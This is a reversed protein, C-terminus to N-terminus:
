SKQQSSRSRWYAAQKPDKPVGLRGNEFCDALQVQAKQIDHEAARIYWQVAQGYDQSVGEGFAYCDGLRYQAWPHEQEAAKCYWRFAEEFSQEVGEGRYYRQALNYQAHANGNEAARRYWVAAKKWDQSVGRGKAYCVGLDKQAVAYNQEAAQTYLSFARAWDRIVGRGYTYCVGLSHQAAANGRDAAQTYLSVARAWDQSVGDGRAYLSGLQYQASADGQESQRVLQDIFGSEAKRPQCESAKIQIQEECYARMRSYILRGAGGSLGDWGDGQCIAELATRFLKGGAVTEGRSGYEGIGWTVRGALRDAPINPDHSRVSIKVYGTLVCYSICMDVSQVGMMMDSIVGLLNPDCPQAEAVAFRYEANYHPNSLAQGCIILDDLSLNSAKLQDFITRDFELTNKMELDTQHSLSQFYVTDMYLGFYLATSLEKTRPIFGAHRLLDWVITCCADYTRVEWLPTRREPNSIKHHDIVATQGAGLPAVNSNGPQCDVTILLEATGEPEPLYELPIKCLDCMLKMDPKTIPKKGSYVLRPSKGRSVLFERLAFGSAIADADPDDHCQIMIDDYRLLDELNM